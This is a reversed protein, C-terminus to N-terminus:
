ALFGSETLSVETTPLLESLFQGLQTLDDPSHAILWDTLWEGHEIKGYEVRVGSMQTFMDALLKAGNGERLWREESRDGAQNIYRRHWRNSELWEQVQESMIVNDGETFGDISSMLEAIARPNLLYNEFTRRPLFHVKESGRRELDARQIPTRNEADFVFAIAPPLLATAGSLRECLELIIDSRRGEFDGTAVVGLVTTGLLPTKAISTLIKPFCAEETRGEVWLVNDAGFVDALRAGVDALADQLDQARRVDIAEIQSEFEPKRVMLMTQPDAATIVTPSHTTVIYQHRYRSERQSKLVDFLKRIAGPHLFSQPEDIIIVTPYEATVLIYFIALVQGIGTGSDNLSPALDERETEPDVTWVRIEVDKDTPVTIAIRRIEPLVTSVLDNFRDWRRENSRLVHLVSALNSADPLLESSSRIRSRAPITRQSVLRHIRKKLLPALQPLLLSAAGATGHNVYELGRREPDVKFAFTNFSATEPTGPIPFVLGLMAAAEIRDPGYTVEIRHVDETMFRAAFEDFFERAGLEGPRQVHWQELEDALLQILEGREIEFRVTVSSTGSVRSQPNPLTRLSRHPQTTFDLSLAEVLATKGVNNPGVIVNFGDALEVESSALFSKYNNVEFSRIYM